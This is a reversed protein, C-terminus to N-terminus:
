FPRCPPCHPGQCASLHPLWGCLCGCWSEHTAVVGAAVSCDINEWHGSPRWPRQWAVQLPCNQLFCGCCAIGAIGLMCCSTSPQTIVRVVCVFTVMMATLMHLLLPLTRISMSNTPSVHWGALNLFLLTSGALLMLCLLKLGLSTSLPSNTPLLSNWGICKSPRFPPTPHAPPDPAPPWYPSPYAQWWYLAAVEQHGCSNGTAWTWPHCLQM